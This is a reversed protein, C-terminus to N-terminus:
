TSIPKNENLYSIIDPENDSIYLLKHYDKGKSLNQLLPYIGTNKIFHEKGLFVMPSYYDFTGYHNQAADMFIEQNTGASGPAFVIGHLSISLLIDERISNSFYKAIHSAFVNSPEHGYFWTPIALSESGKPFKDLVKLATEHYGIEDFKLDGDLIQLALDLEKREYEGMYAGLNAAEMIGPGGGSCVLYGKKTLGFAIIAVKKYFLDNRKTSHGGMIGVCKRLYTCDEQPMLFDNLGDDISHDHLRQFLQETISGKHKTANFRNYIEEDITLGPSISSMTYLEQWSYLNNRYPQFPLNPVEPFILCGKKILAIMDNDSLKCGLFICENMKLSKWNIPSLSFDISQFCCENYTYGNDLFSAFDEIEKYIKM